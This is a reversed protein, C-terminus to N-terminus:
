PKQGTYAARAALATVLRTRQKREEPQVVQRQYFLWYDLQELIHRRTEWYERRARAILIAEHEQVIPAHAEVYRDFVFESLTELRHFQEAAFYADHALVLVSGLTDVIAFLHSANQRVAPAYPGATCRRGHLTRGRSLNACLGIAQAGWRGLRCDVVHMGSVNRLDIGMAVAARRRLELKM